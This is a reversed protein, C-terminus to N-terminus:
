ENITKLYESCVCAEGYVKYFQKDKRGACQLQKYWNIKSESEKRLLETYREKNIKMAETYITIYEKAINMGENFAKEKWMTVGVKM